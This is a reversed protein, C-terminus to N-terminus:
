YKIIFGLGINRPRTESAVNASSATVLREAQADSGPTSGGSNSSDAFNNIKYVDTHTHQQIAHDEETGVNDGTNGGPAIARRSSADPALWPYITIGSGTASFDIYTGAIANAHSSALRITTTSVYIVWYVTSLSLEPPLTGTVTVPIGSHNYEHLGVTIIDSVSNITASYSPIDQTGRLFSGRGDPVRFYQVGDGGWGYGIVSFLGPYINKDYLNGDCYLFRYPINSKPGAFPLVVGTPVINNDHPATVILNHDITVTNTAADRRLALSGITGFYRKDAINSFNDFGLGVPTSDWTVQWLLFNNPNNSVTTIPLTTLDTFAGSTIGKIRYGTNTPSGHHALRLKGLTADLYITYTGNDLFVGASTVFYFLLDESIQTSSVTIGNVQVAEGDVAMSIAAGAAPAVTFTISTSSIEIYDSPAAQLVGNIYVKLNGSGPIYTLGGLLSFTVVVGNGSFNQTGSPLLKKILFNDRAFTPGIFPSGASDTTSGYLASNVTFQDGSIGSEHFLKEHQEPTKGSFGSIDAISLGHPNVPTPTGTGVAHVHDDFTVAQGPTYPQGLANLTSVADPVTVVLAKTQLSFFSRNAVSLIGTTDVAGLYIANANPAFTNPTTSVSPGADTVVEIKYGDGGSTFLRKNTIDALSFVASDITALYTIFLYNVQGSTLPIAVCGTSQPTSSTGGIGNDATALPASANYFVSANDVIIREGTPDYAVGTAVNARLPLTLVTIQFPITEAFLQSDQVIGVNFSDNLREKIAEEKSNQAKDLDSKLVPQDEQWIEKKM